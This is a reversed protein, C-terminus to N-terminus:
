IYAVSFRLTYARGTVLTFSDANSMYLGNSAVKITLRYYTSGDILHGAGIATGTAPQDAANWASTTIPQTGWFANFEFASSWSVTLNAALIKTSNLRYVTVSQGIIALGYNESVAGHSHV